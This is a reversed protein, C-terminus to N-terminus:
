PIIHDKRWLRSFPEVEVFKNFFHLLNLFEIILYFLLAMVCFNNFNFNLLWIGYKDSGFFELALDFNVIISV